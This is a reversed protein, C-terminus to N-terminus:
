GVKGLDIIESIARTITEQDVWNECEKDLTLKKEGDGGRVWVM